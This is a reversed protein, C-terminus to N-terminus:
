DVVEVYPVEAVLEAVAAPLEVPSSTVTVVAASVSIEEEREDVVSDEIVTVYEADTSLGPVGVNVSDVPADVLAVKLSVEQAEEDSAEVEEVVNPGPRNAALAIEEKSVEEGDVTVTDAGEPVADSKPDELSAEIAQQEAVQAEHAAEETSPNPMSRM